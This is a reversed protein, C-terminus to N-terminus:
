QNEGDEWAPPPMDPVDPAPLPCNFGSCQTVDDIPIEPLVVVQDQKLRVRNDPGSAMGTILPSLDDGGTGCGTFPPVDLGKSPGFVRGNAERYQPSDVPFLARPALGPEAGLDGGPLPFYGGRDFDGWLALEAPHETRCRPGVDVPVGDVVLDSIQIDVEGEILTVIKYPPRYDPDCGPMERSMGQDDWQHNVLYQVDGDEVPVRLTLTASAPVSGFAAMNVRTEAVFGVDAGGGKLPRVPFVLNRTYASGRQTAPDDTACEPQYFPNPVCPPADADSSTCLETKTPNQIPVNHEYIYLLSWVPDEPGFEIAMRPKNAVTVQSATATGGSTSTEALPTLYEAGPVDPLAQPVAAQPAAPQDPATPPVEPTAYSPVFMAGALVVALAAARIARIRRLVSIVNRM